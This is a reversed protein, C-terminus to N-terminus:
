YNDYKHLSIGLSKAARSKIGKKWEFVKKLVIKCFVKFDFVLTPEKRNEDTDQEEKQRFLMELNMIFNDTISQQTIKGPRIAASPGSAFSCFHSATLVKENKTTMDRYAAFLKNNIERVNGRLECNMLLCYVGEDMVPKIGKDSTLCIDRYLMDAILPIDEKRERLPPIHLQCMRMRNFLDERFQRAAVMQVLDANTAFIILPNVKIAHDSGLPTVEYDDLVTLLKSQIELPVNGFENLFISGNYAARFYGKRNENAGSFSGKDHGFLASEVRDPHLNSCNEHVFNKRDVVNVSTSHLIKAALDKGVGTEGTILICKAGKENAIWLLQERVQKAQPSVGKFDSLVWDGPGKRPTTHTPNKDNAAKTM